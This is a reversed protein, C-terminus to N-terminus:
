VCINEQSYNCVNYLIQFNNFLKDFQFDSLYIDELGRAGSNLLLACDNVDIM